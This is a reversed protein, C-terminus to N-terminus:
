RNPQILRMDFWRVPMAKRKKEKRVVLANQHQNTHVTPRPTDIQVTIKLQRAPKKSNSRHQRRIKSLELPTKRVLMM